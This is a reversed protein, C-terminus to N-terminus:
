APSLLKLLLEDALTVWETNCGLTESLGALRLKPFCFTFLVLAAFVTVRVFVPPAIKFRDDRVMLPSKANSGPVVQEFPPVSAGAAVQRIETVKVGVVVPARAPLTVIVGSSAGLLWCFTEREPVPFQAVPGM